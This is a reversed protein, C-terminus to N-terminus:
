SLRRLRGSVGRVATRSKDVVCQTFWQGDTGRGVELEALTVGKLGAGIEHRAPDVAEGRAWGRLAGPQIEVEFDSFLMTREAMEYILANLWDVLLLEDNPAHCTLPVAQMPRITGPEGALAALAIAAYAFADSKTRGITRIGVDAGHSFYEWHQPAPEVGKSSAAQPFKLKQQLANMKKPTTSARGGTRQKSWERRATARFKLPSKM